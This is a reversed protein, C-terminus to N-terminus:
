VPASGAPRDVADGTRGLDDRSTLSSPVVYSLVAVFPGVAVAAIARLHLGTTVVGGVRALQEHTPGAGLLEGLQWALLSALLMGAALAVLVVVGRRRRLSWAAIGALLGLAALVLVYVGDDAMFMEASSAGGVPQLDTVSVVRYSARPALQHWVGGAALGALALTLVTLLGVRVDEREPRLGIRRAAIRPRDADLVAAPAPASLGSPQAVPRDEPHATV